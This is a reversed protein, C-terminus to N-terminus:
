ESEPSLRVEIQHDRIRTEFLPQPFTAPGDVVRGTEMSFVSGHWPCSVCHDQLSGQDLPGGMHSCTAALALIRTGERLLVIPSGKATAGTLKGEPLESESMVAVWDHPLSESQVHSVGVHEGYVLEGGLYAAIVTVTVGLSALIRAANRADSKRMLLSLGMAGVGVANAVGHILGIRSSKGQTFRWDNVGSSISALAGIMGVTATIDAARGVGSDGSSADLLDLLETMMWAGAPVVVILPHFPHGLWTGFLANRVTRKTEGGGGYVNTALKRMTDAAQNVFDEQQIVNTARKLEM